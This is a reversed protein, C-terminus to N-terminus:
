SFWAQASDSTMSSTHRNHHLLDLAPFLHTVQSVWAAGSLSLDGATFLPLLPKMIFIVHETPCM